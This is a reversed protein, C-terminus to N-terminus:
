PSPVLRQVEDTWHQILIVAPPVGPAATLMLFRGAPGVHYQRIAGPNAFYDDVFLETAPGVRFGGATDVEVAMVRDGLRYFIQSGSAWIVAEGGGISVPVVPGPGPYPQAYVQVEGSQDSRYVLWKGDPSYEASGRAFEGQLLPVPTREGDLPVEWIERHPPVPGGFNRSFVVRGGDPTIDSPWDWEESTTLREAEGSGDAPVVYLDSTAQAPWSAIVIRTGDPTWVPGWVRHGQALRLEGGSVADFVWLDRRGEIEEVVAIRTGDLSVRPSRYARPPIPLPDENGDPDVWVLTRLDARDAGAAGPMYVLSGNQAVGFNAAGSGKTTVGDFVPTWDGTVERRGPDFRVARLRGAVGYVLHGTPVYRPHGGGLNLLTPEGGELSVVALQANRATRTEGAPTITFLVADGSPLMEPWKHIGQEDPTTLQMPEGGRAHVRWLGGGAGNTGFVITDDAGWTAGLFGDPLNCIELAPGGHVSVRKLVRDQLSSNGSPRLDLFELWEGDASFFPSHPRGESVLTTPALQDLSRVQLRAAEFSGTLYAVLQGDPSIAVDPSGGAVYLPETDDASVVFRALAEPAPRVQSWVAVGVIAGGVLAAVVSPMARRWGARHSAAVPVSVSPQSDCEAIWQLEDTLDHASHWRDEPDKALCKRVVRDLAPPTMPQLTPMPVPERELIAAILSAQSNGTFARQGTAMEYVLAGFAFIDTRADAEKGELQEPAMYPLTGLLTGRATLPSDQTTAASFGEAGATGPKRLKAM